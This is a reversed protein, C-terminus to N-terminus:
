RLLRIAVPVLVVVFFCFSLLLAWFRFGARRAKRLASLRARDFGLAYHHRWNEQTDVPEPGAPGDRFLVFNPRVDPDHM